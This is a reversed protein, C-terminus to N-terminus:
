CRWSHAQMQQTLLHPSLRQPFLTAEGLRAPDNLARTNKTMGQYPSTNQGSSFRFFSLPWTFRHQVADVHCSVNRREEKGKSWNRYSGNIVRHSSTINGNRSINKDLSHMELWMGSCPLQELLKLMYSAQTTRYNLVFSRAKHSLLHKLPVSWNSHSKCRMASRRDWTGARYSSSRTPQSWEALRWRRLGRVSTFHHLYQTLIGTFNAPVM